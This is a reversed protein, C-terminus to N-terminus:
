AIQWSVLQAEEVPSAEPLMDGRLISLREIIRDVAEADVQMCQMADVRRVSATM